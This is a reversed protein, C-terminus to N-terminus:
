RDSDSCDETPLSMKPERGPLQLPIEWCHLSGDVSQRHQYISPKM